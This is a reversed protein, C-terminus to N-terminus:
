ESNYPPPDTPIVIGRCAFGRKELCNNDNWLGDPYMEVCDENGLNAGHFIGNPEGPAWNVFGLATMDTWGWGVPFDLDNLGIWVDNTALLSYPPHTQSATNWFELLNIARCASRAAYWTKKEEFPKYCFEGFEYWDPGACRLEANSFMTVLCLFPKLLSI